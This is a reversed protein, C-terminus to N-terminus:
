EWPGPGEPLLKMRGLTQPDVRSQATLRLKTALSMQLRTAKDWTDLKSPDGASRHSTLTAQVYSALLPADSPRLHGASAVLESFLVRESKRLSRPPEIAPRPAEIVPFTVVSAPKRGRQKM